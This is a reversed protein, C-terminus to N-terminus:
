EWKYPYNIGLKKLKETNDWLEKQAERYGPLPSPGEGRTKQLTKQLVVRRRLLTVVDKQAAPTLKDFAPRNKIVGRIWEKAASIAAKMSASDEGWVYTMQVGDLFVDARSFPGLGAKKVRITYGKYEETADYEERTM